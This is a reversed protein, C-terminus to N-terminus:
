ALLLALGALALAAGGFRATIPGAPLLKEVLVFGAILAVWLLNMVGAVFLLLMLAWCCGVCYLGHEAGMLFAGRRGSRWRTIFFELPQRCKKLCAYKLPLWQYIGAALLIAASLGRSASIMTMSLLEAHQLGIQALTAAASFATWVVLYGSTFIWAAPVANGRESNKRVMAAYLLIAPAASPLMMGVMMVSWMAFTMLAAGTTSAPMHAMGAMMTADHWLYLWALAAVLVLSAAVTRRDRRLAAEIGRDLAPPAGIGGM